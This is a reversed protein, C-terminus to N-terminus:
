RSADLQDNKAAGQAMRGCLPPAAQPEGGLSGFVFQWSGVAIDSRDM